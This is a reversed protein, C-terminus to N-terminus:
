DLVRLRTTKNRLEAYLLSYVPSQLGLVKSERVVYGTLTELETKGGKLFDGHMSSTSGPPAHRIRMLTTDRIDPAVDIMKASALLAAEDILSVLLTTNMADGLIAGINADLYSTLTALSSIFIYKEWVTKEIDSSLEANIGAARFLDAVRKLKVSSVVAGGFQILKIESEVKVTAPKALRAVIFACGNWVDAGPLIKRITEAHGLGNLLPLVSTNPGICNAFASISEELSYAKTSIILLDVVGIEVPDESVLFPHACFADATTMVELGRADIASRNAGRAIFIIEVEDSGAFHAALCGGFFGGVGGIGLVAIRFKESRPKGM